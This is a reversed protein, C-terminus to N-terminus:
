QLYQVLRTGDNIVHLAGSIFGEDDDFRELGARVHAGLDDLVEATSDVTVVVTCVPLRAPISPM